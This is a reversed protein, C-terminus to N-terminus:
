TRGPESSPSRSCTRRAQSASARACPRAAGVQLRKPQRRSRSRTSAPRSRGTPRSLVENAHTGVGNTTWRAPFFYLMISDPDFAHRPDPRARVERARQPPDPRADLHQAPRLPRPDGRGREVRHRRGPEPARPRPRDRPRVRPGLHRRGPLGSEDDAANRPISLCDTGLYSWAGDSPDFAVRIEADPDNSAVFTLNAHESWWAAQAMALDRQAQRAAWSASGCAAATRGCSASSSSPRSTRAPACRRSCSSARCCGTSAPVHCDAM